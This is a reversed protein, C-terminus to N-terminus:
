RRTLIAESTKSSWGGFSEDILWVRLRIALLLGVTRVELLSKWTRSLEGVTACPIRLWGSPPLEECHFVAFGIM